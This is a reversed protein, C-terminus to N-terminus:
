CTYNNGGGENSPPNPAVLYKVCTNLLCDEPVDMGYGGVLIEQMPQTLFEDSNAPLTFHPFAGVALNHLQHCSSPHQGVCLMLILQLIKDSRTGSLGYTGLPIIWVDLEMSSIQSANICPLRSSNVDIYSDGLSTKMPWRLESVAGPIRLRHYSTRLICLRARAVRASAVLGRDSVGRISVLEWFKSVLFHPFLTSSFKRRNALTSLRALDAAWSLGPKQFFVEKNLICLALALNHHQNGAHVVQEELSLKTRVQRTGDAGLLGLIGLIRDEQHTPSCDRGCSQFLVEWPEFERCHQERVTMLKICRYISEDGIIGLLFLVQIYADEHLFYMNSMPGARMILPKSGCVTCAEDKVIIQDTPISEHQQRSEPSRVGLNKVCCKCFGVSSRDLIYSNICYLSEPELHGMIFRLYKPLLWEQLTWVRYFWRPLDRDPDEQHDTPVDQTYHGVGHPLVYCGRSKGYYDGMRGIEADKEQVDTQNICLADMWVAEVGDSRLCGLLERLELYCKCDRLDADRFVANYSSAAAEEARSSTQQICQAMEKSLDRVSESWTHSIVHFRWDKGTAKFIIGKEGERLTAAVDVVRIPGNESRDDIPPPISSQTTADHTTPSLEM